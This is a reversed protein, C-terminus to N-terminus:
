AVHVRAMVLAMHHKDPQFPCCTSPLLLCPCASSQVCSPLQLMHLCISHLIVALVCLMAACQEGRPVVQVEAQKSAGGLHQASLDQCIEASGAATTCNPASMVHRATLLLGLSNGCERM